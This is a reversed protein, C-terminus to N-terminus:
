ITKPQISAMIKVSGYWIRSKDIICCDFNIDPRMSIQIGNNRLMAVDDNEEKTIISVSVGNIQLHHLREIIASVHGM